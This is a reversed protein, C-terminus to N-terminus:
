GHTEAGEVLSIPLESELPAADKPPLPSERILMGFGPDGQDLGHDKMLQCFVEYDSPTGPSSPPTQYTICGQSDIHSWNRTVTGHVFVADKFDRVTTREPVDLMLTTSTTDEDQKNALRLMQITQPVPLELTSLRRHWSLVVFRLQGAGDKDPVLAYLGSPVSAYGWPYLDTGEREKYALVTKIDEEMPRQEANSTSRVPIDPSVKVYSSESKKYLASRSARHPRDDNASSKEPRRDVVLLYKPLDRQPLEPPTLPIPHRYGWRAAGETFALAIIAGLFVAVAYVFLRKRLQRTM